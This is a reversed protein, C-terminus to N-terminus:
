KQGAMKLGFAAFPLRVKTKLRLGAGIAFKATTVPQWWRKDTGGMIAELM